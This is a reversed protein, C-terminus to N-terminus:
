NKGVLVFFLFSFLVASTGCHLLRLSSFLVLGEEEGRHVVSVRSLQLLAVDDIALVQDKGGFDPVYEKQIYIIRGVDAMKLPLVPLTLNAAATGQLLAPYEGAMYSLGVEFQGPWVYGSFWNDTILAGGQSFRASDGRYQVALRLETSNPVVPPLHLDVSWEQALGWEEGTPEQAKGSPAKPVDRAAAAQKVLTLAPKAVALVPFPISVKQFFGDNTDPLPAAAAAPKLGKALPPFVWITRAATPPATAGAAGEVTTNARLRITGEEMMVLHIDEDSLVVREEGAFRGRGVSDKFAEPLVTVTTQWTPTTVSVAAGTGSVIGTITFTTGTATKVSAVKTGSSSGGAVVSTTTAVATPVFVSLEAPVGETEILFLAEGNKQFVGGARCLLQATAYTLRVTTGAPSSTSDAPSNAISANSTPSRTSSASINNSPGSIPLNFPWQFWSDAAVTIASSNIAPINVVDAAGDDAGNSGVAGGEANAEDAAFRLQFRVHEKAALPALRQYNNVFLFGSRDAAAARVAWRVTTDDANGSPQVVPLHAKMDAIYAFDSQLLHLRRMQHYHLRPQGFEGLPAYFDYSMSNMPNQAGAPMFSSEQLTTEPSFDRTVSAPNNGGHYM